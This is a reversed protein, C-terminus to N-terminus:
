TLIQSSAVCAGGGSQRGETPAEGWLCTDSALDARASAGSSRRQIIIVVSRRTSDKASSKFVRRTNYTASHGQQWSGSLNLGKDSLNSGGKRIMREGWFTTDVPIMAAPKIYNMGETRKAEILGRFFLPFHYCKTPHDAVVAPFSKISGADTFGFVARQSDMLVCNDVSSLGRPRFDGSCDVPLALTGIHTRIYQGRPRFAGPCDVSPHVHTIRMSPCDEHSFDGVSLGRLRFDGVVNKTPSFDGVSLGRFPWRTSIRM